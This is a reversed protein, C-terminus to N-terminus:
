NLQSIFKWKRFLYFMPHPNGVEAQAAVALVGAVLVALVEVEVAVLDAAVVEAL